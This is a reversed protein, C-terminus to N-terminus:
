GYLAGPWSADAYGSLKVPPTYTITHDVGGELDAELKCAAWTTVEVVPQGPVLDVRHGPPPCIGSPTSTRLRTLIPELRFSPLVTMIRWGSALENVALYQSPALAPLGYSCM